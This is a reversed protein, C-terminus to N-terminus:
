QPTRIMTWHNVDSGPIKDHRRTEFQYRQYIPINSEDHTELFIPQGEGDAREMMPRMLKSAYGKGRHRKKVGIQFLYIHPSTIVEHHLKSAFETFMMSRYAIRLGMKLFLGIGGNTLNSWISIDSRESPLWLAIGEMNESTAYAEGFKITHKIMLQFIHPYIRPRASPDEVMYSFLPYDIFAETFVKSAEIIHKDSLKLLERSELMLTYHTQFTLHKLM